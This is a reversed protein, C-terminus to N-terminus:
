FNFLNKEELLVCNEEGESSNFLGRGPRAGGAVVQRQESWVTSWRWREEEKEEVKYRGVGSSTFLSLGGSPRARM